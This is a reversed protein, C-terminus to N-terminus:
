QTCQSNKLFLIPIITVDEGKADGEAAKEGPWTRYSWGQDDSAWYSRLQNLRPEGEGGWYVSGCCVQWRAMGQESVRPWGFLSLNQRRAGLTEKRAGGGRSKWTPAFWMVERLRWWGNLFEPEYDWGRWHKLSQTHYFVREWDPRARLFHSKQKQGIFVEQGWVPISIELSGSCRGAGPKVWTSFDMATSLM